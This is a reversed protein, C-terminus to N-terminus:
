LIRGELDRLVSDLAEELGKHDLIFIYEALVAKCAEVIERDRARIMASLGSFQETLIPLARIMDAFEDASKM